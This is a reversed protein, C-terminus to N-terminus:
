NVRELVPKALVLAVIACIGMLSGTVVPDYHSGMVPFVMWSLNRLTHFISTAFVSEGGRIYICVICIRGSISGLAWWIIWDLERGVQFLPVLHWIASVAGILIGGLLIGHTGVVSKTAYGSWGLEECTAAIFFVALLSLIQLLNIEPVPLEQGLNVQLIWSLLMVLPMTVLAFIWVWKGMRKFDFARLLLAKVGITGRLRYDLLGAAMAPCIAMIASVPLNPLLETKALMGLLWIPISLLFVLGFFQFHSRQHKPM